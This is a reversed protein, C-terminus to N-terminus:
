AYNRDAVQAIPLSANSTSLTFNRISFPVYGSKYVCIDVTQPTEYIYNWTSGINTDVTSLETTTGAVLVVIDSGSQLGNLTLTITDLPYIAARETSTSNTILYVSTIATSNTTTTSIKLKLKFGTLPNIGTLGNLATALTAATYASTTMTSYGNGDQKDISYEFRYNAVTGGAMILASNMFKKHGRLYYPTEFTATQGIVPMYLGGASTFAAGNTLTVQSATSSTPENMQIAIRGNLVEKTLTGSAAGANLCTFTYTNSTLVTITKQGITIAAADSTVTVYVLDGTRLNHNTSTVTAVTTVRTWGIAATNSPTGTTYYDFWHTGYVSTQATLAPTCTVMKLATNLSPVLQAQVDNGQVSEFTVNKSSNDTTMLVGRLHPVYCQQVRVDNAAAGAALVVLSATMIPYYTLTQGTLSGTTCAFTFTDATAAATLTKAGIPVSATGSSAIVYIIDGVKLGHGVKTVTCTTTAQTWTGDVKAGGMDLPSAASGLRRLKINTCGAALINLVGAYSQVLALGGFTVGDVMCRLCNSAMSFAYFPIATGTTLAPHDYYISDKFTVDTNTNQWVQGGGLTTNTWASNVVRTQISTGSTANTAKTLSHNRENTVTFDSCDAWSTIYAGSIGQSARTWTCRDMTGGAFNLGATLALNTNAAPQGVGVNSWAIPSACETLVIGDLTNTNTLQISYAQAFNMYWNVNAKDIDIVGGGTTAFEMRTALTANPIINDSRAAVTCTTFFINPVRVKRGTTPCYGGTSNTGDHGFRVLGASTIFSWRGRVEDTAINALLATRTGACPYFEYVGSGIATEVEVGGCYVLTGNSPIQYTTARVGDTTGLDFYDGRVKFLNLRNVTVTSADVGVIELWGARDTDTATAAIGVLVGAAYSVSNWQRILIFGSVPMASAAATPAVNLASYVGLLKGSSGNQTILTGLAPVNGSGTNFPILRVLTSNFEITGGLSASMTINGMGASTNQNTGYRTHQDVTLYGGNINYIDSGVKAALTDINVPTTITYTAM